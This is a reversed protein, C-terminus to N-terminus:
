ILREMDCLKPSEGNYTNCCVTVIHMVLYIGQSDVDTKYISYIGCRGDHYFPRNYLDQAIQICTQAHLAYEVYILNSDLSNVRNRYVSFRKALVKM